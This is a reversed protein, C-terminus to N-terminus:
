TDLLYETSIPLEAPTRSQSETLGIRSFDGELGFPLLSWVAASFGIGLERERQKRFVYDRKTGSDVVTGLSEITLPGNALSEAPDRPDTILQGLRIATDPPFSTDYLM